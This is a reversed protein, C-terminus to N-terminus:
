CRRGPQIKGFDRLGQLATIGATPVAAAEEFTVNAPKPAIAKRVTVYEAM